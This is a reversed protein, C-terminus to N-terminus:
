EAEAKYDTLARLLQFHADEILAPSGDAEAEVFRSAAVVVPAALAWARKWEDATLASATTAPRVEILRLIEKIGLAAPPDVPADPRRGDFGLEAARGAFGHEVARADLQNEAIWQEATARNPFMAAVYASTTWSQDRAPHTASHELWVARDLGEPQGREILWQITM